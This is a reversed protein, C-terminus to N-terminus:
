ASIPRSNIPSLRCARPAPLAPALGPLAVSVVLTGAGALAERRNITMM